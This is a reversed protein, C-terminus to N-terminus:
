SSRTRWSETARCRRWSRRTPELRPVPPYPVRPPKRPNLLRSWPPAAAAPPGGAVALAPARGSAAPRAPRGSWMQRLQQLPPPPPPRPPRRQLHLARRAHVAPEPARPPPPQPRPPPPEPAPGPGGAITRAAGTLPIRGTPSSSLAVPKSPSPLGRRRRKRKRRRTRARRRNHRKSKSSYPSLIRSSTTSHTSTPRWSHWSSWPPSWPRRSGSRSGWFVLPTLSNGPLRAPLAPFTRVKPADKGAQQERRFPLGLHLELQRISDELDVSSTSAHESSVVREQYALLLDEVEDRSALPSPSGRTM